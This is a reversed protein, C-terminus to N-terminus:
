ERIIIWNLHCRIVTDPVNKGDQQLVPRTSLSERQQGPKCIASNLLRGINGLVSNRGKHRNPTDAKETESNRIARIGEFRIARLRRRQVQFFYVM